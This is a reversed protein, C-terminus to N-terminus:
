SNVKNTAEAAEESTLGLAVLIARIMEAGHVLLAHVSPSLWHWNMCQNSHFRRLWDQALLDYQEASLDRTQCIATILYDLDELLDLPFKTIESFIQINEFAKRVLNGSNSNGGHPHPM